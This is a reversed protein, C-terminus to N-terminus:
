REILAKVRRTTKSFGIALKILQRGDTAFPAAYHKKEIQNMASKASGNVKLEVIYIFKSTKIVMDIFGNSTNYESEVNIGILRFICHFISHYYNEYKSVREQLKSPIDALFANLYKVFHEPRGDELADIFNFISSRIDYHPEGYVELINDLLGTEVERNPYGLYYLKRKDNYSKLTLYGTQYLLVEPKVKEMSLNTLSSEGIEVNNLHELDFDLGFLLRSLITPNGSECWYNKIELEELALNISFPNYIDLLQSSFHYGDYHHKLIEFAQEIDIKEKQAFAKIGDYYFVRLEEETVGCIGAYNNSFSIDKLNNLGSFISLKGYVTVGTLMCFRIVDEMKKLISYFSHLQNRYTEQLFQNNITDTLPADYEDILIVIGKQQIATIKEILDQFKSSLSIGSVEVGFELSWKNICSDLYALLSTENEYYVGSLNLRLVPYKVWEQPQLKYIKLGKFLHRKGKFYADLTNLFMSKGFRRPRSLFYYKGANVLSNLYETKDVYLYGERRIEEFGAM